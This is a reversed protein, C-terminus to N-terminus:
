LPPPRSLLRPTCGIGAPPAPSPDVDPICPRLATVPVPSQAAPKRRAAPRVVSKSPAIEYVVDDEILAETCPVPVALALLIGILGLNM